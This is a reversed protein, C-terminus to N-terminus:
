WHEDCYTKYMAYSQSLSVGDEEKFVLYNDEVFNFFVDTKYMMDLPKYTSYYNKGMKRISMSVNSAIAALEFDIQSMLTQFKKKPNEEQHGFM